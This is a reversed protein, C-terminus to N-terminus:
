RSDRSACTVMMSSFRARKMGVQFGVGFALSKRAEDGQEETRLSSNSNVWSQLNSGGRFIQVSNTPLCLAHASALM